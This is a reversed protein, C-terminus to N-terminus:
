GHSNAPLKRVSTIPAKSILYLEHLKMHRFVQSFVEDTLGQFTEDKLVLTLRKLGLVFDNLHEFSPCINDVFHTM